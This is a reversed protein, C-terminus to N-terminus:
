LCLYLIQIIMISFNLHTWPPFPWTAHCFLIFVVMVLGSLTKVDLLTGLLPYQWGVGVVFVFIIKTNEYCLFQPPDMSPLALYCSMVPHFGGNGVCVCPKWLWYLELFHTSGGLVLTSCLYLRQCINKLWSWRFFTHKKGLEEQFCANKLWNWGFFMHKEPMELWFFYM